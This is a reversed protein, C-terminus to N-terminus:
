GGAGRLQAVIERLFAAYSQGAAFDPMGSLRALHAGVKSAVVNSANTPFWSEQAIVRVGQARALEIVQAVHSPSPPIGPRPELEAVVVMGLWDALYSLSRHYSVIKMGELRQISGGLAATTARLEAVFRKTAELYTSRGEPDLEALRKGVGVAVREVRRPDLMFHPNGLPHVDGMSRDIKGTPVELLSVLTAADLYGPAGRQIKGNRSGTLLVPLWGIELDAGTLVLLDAKSLELALSPKADVWHPDQTRLALATVKVRSGGVAKAVCALDPTTAVVNLTAHAAGTVFLSLLTLLFVVIHKM